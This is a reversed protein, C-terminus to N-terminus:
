VRNERTPLFFRSQPIQRFHRDVLSLLRFGYDWAAAVPTPRHTEGGQSLSGLPGWAIRTGWFMMAGTTKPVIRQNSKRGLEGIRPKEAAFVALRGARSSKLRFFDFSGDFMLRTIM